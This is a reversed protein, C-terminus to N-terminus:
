VGPLAFVSWGVCAGQGAPLERKVHPLRAAVPVLLHLVLHALPLYTQPSLCLLHRTVLAQSKKQSTSSFTGHGREREGRSDVRTNGAPCPLAPQSPRQRLWHEPSTPRASKTLAGREVARGAGGRSVHVLAQDFINERNRAIILRAHCSGLQVPTAAPARPGGGSGRRERSEM